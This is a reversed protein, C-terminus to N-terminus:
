RKAELMIWQVGIQQQITTHDMSRSAYTRMKVWYSVATEEIPQDSFMFFDDILIPGFNTDPDIYSVTYKRYALEVNGRMLWLEAFSNSPIMTGATAKVQIWSMMKKNNSDNIIVYQSDNFRSKMEYVVTVASKAIKITDVALDKIKASDIAADKIKATDIAGDKIKATDVALNAIKATTIAADGIQATQITGSAIYATDIYTGPPVTVGNIITNTTVQIFPKKSLSPDGIFFMDANFGIQSKVVGNIMQSIINWGTVLGNNNIQFSAQAMVGNISTTQQNITTTHQGVTTSLTTYQSSLSSISGEANSVRTTLGSVASADAKGQITDRIDKLPQAWASWTTTNVSTRQIYLSPDAASTATQIIPGGTLDSYYVLTELNCYTGGFYTNVGIVSQTKFENVRRRPYNALYWSPPQNTSRTDSVTVADLAKSVDSELATTKSAIADLGTTSHNVKNSLTDLAASSAKSALGNTTNEITAKLNDVKTNVASLGTTSHQVQNNLTTLAQSSAKSALGTTANNVANELNTIATGQSTSKGEEAAVRTTLSSLASADAKKSIDGEVTSVRGSLATVDSNTTTVRGDVRAVESNTASIAASTAATNAADLGDADAPEVTFYELAFETNAPVIAGLRLFAALNPMIRPSAITGSGSAGAPNVGKIYYVGEKWVDVPAASASGGFPYTTSSISNVSIVSNANNVGNAKDQTLPMVALYFTGTGSLRKVKYSVKYLTNPNIQVHPGAFMNYGTGAKVKIVKPVTTSADDILEIVGDTRTKVAADISVQTPVLRIASISADLSNTLSTINSSATELGGEVNGVRTTLATVAAAEAKTAVAGEVNSVRGTLATVNSNTTNVRGDVVTVRNDVTTLAASSAKTALGTTAHNVSNELATIANGQSTSKGEESEVRTTLSSLASADAKKALDGVVNDVRGTLSTIRNSETTVRGDVRSVEANTNTIATANADLQNQVDASSPAIATAKTGREAQVSSVTPYSVRFRTANEPTTLSVLNSSSAQRLIVNDSDDYFAYRFYNDAAESVKSLIIPEGAKVTIYGNITSNRAYSSITGNSSVITDKLDDHRNILNVGGIVLSADYKSVEGAAIETAKADAQTKTYIDNLASANAKTALAGNISTIDAALQTLQGTHGTVVGNVRSVESNTATLASTSAKTALGTTSHNVTNQLTTIASGQSTNVGEANSVRTTLATLAAAEAKTSVAGEVTSVRGTLATVNSNTTDIRGNAATVKNDVETLAAASAKSSLGTTAHNVTNELTTIASGQSTNVGEANTVRTEIANLASADAKTTLAGNITNVNNKLTTIDNSQSTITNKTNTLETNTNSIALANADIQTQTFKDSQSFTSATTAKEMMFNRWRIEDGATKRGVLNFVLNIGTAPQGSTYTGAATTLKIWKDKPLTKVDVTPAYIYSPASFRYTGFQITYDSTDTSPVYIEISAITPDGIQINSLDLNDDTLYNFRQTNGSATEAFVIRGPSTQSRLVVPNPGYYLNQGGITLKSNYEAVQGAAITTARSDSEAKQYYNNLASSEAKTALGNTLTTISGKISTIDNGQTKVTGDLNTVKTDLSNFATLDAKTAINNNATTMQGQLTTIANGQTTITNGQQTTTTQLNSVATTNAATRPDTVDDWATGNWRKTENNKGATTNIWLDGVVLGATPASAQRYTRNKTGVSSELATIQQGQSTIANKANTVEVNTATLASADAKTAVNNNTTTLDTRLKSIDQAQATQTNGISTVTANTDKIAQANAALSDQTDQEALRWTTAKSGEELQEKDLYVTGGVPIYTFYVRINLITADTVKFTYSYDQYVDPNHVAPMTEGLKSAGQLTRFEPLQPCKMRLSLTYTKGNTLTRTRKEIRNTSVSATAVYKLTSDENSLTGSYPIWDNRLTPSSFDANTQLNVGGITLSVDYASIQGAAIEAAKTDAQTKTYFNNLASADAKLALTGQIGSVQSNIATIASSNASGTSAASEAKQLVASVASDNATKYASLDGAIKTDANQYDTTVKTIGNSLTAIQGDVSTKLTAVKNDTETRLTTAKSEIASNRDTVEKTIAAARASSEASIATARDTSEKTVAAVRDKVEQTIAVAAENAKTQASNASTQANDAATKATNASTQANDAATQATAAATQAVGAADKAAQATTAATNIKDNLVPKLNTEDIYGSILDIVKSPSNDVIGFVWVSWPGATGNRDIVRGRYFIKLGGQLGNIVTTTTPYAFLGLQTPNSYDANNTTQIEVYAANQAGVAPFKWDLRMGFLIGTASISALKPPDAFKSNILVPNSQKAVSRAGVTNVAVVRAIYVGAFANEIVMSNTYQIPASVWGGDDRRWQVEYSVAGSVQTWSILVNTVDIGQVIRNESKIDIDTVPAQTNIDIVSVPRQEIVAGYDAADFIGPEHQVGVVSFTLEEESKNQTVSIVSFRMLKLDDSDIAWVNQVAPEDFAVSVTINRGNVSSVQRSEQEGSDNNIVFRDGAKVVVDRDVTITKRDTSIKAIRGGIARGALLPDAVEIIRGAQPIYGDLGVTFTVLRTELQEKKLAWIGARQAQGRSTCGFASMKLTRIGVEAIAQPDSVPEPTTKFNNEPDDFNVIVMSHRDRSRTGKYSFQGIINASTYTYVPEQPRDSNTVISVGNWHLMGRFVSYLQMLCEFAEMESNIYVNCTFRPETGGKGDPVMVDCYQGIVYLSWKDLMTADIRNGLGYRVNLIIDYCIWAPNNSYAYKFSGDWVGNTTGEGTTAYKRTVPDYNKPVRILKGKLRIDIKAINSFLEADYTLGILATNPYRLKSDVILAVASIYMKDGIFESTSNKTLRRVRLTWGTKAEPLEIRHSREYNTSTKDSLQTRLVEKFGTGDTDLDIAYDITYGTTDGNEENRKFVPGWMLRIRAADLSTDNISYTFNRTDLIEVNGLSIENVVSPFGELYTQDNTGTRFDWQVGEYNTDGNQGIIPTGDLLISKAGDVLGAIEGEALGYVARVRSISSASDPAINAKRSKGAGAKSGIIKKIKM